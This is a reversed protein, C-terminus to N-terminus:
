SVRINFSNFPKYIDVSHTQTVFIDVHFTFFTNIFINLWIPFNSSCGCDTFNSYVVSFTLLVTRSQCYQKLYENQLVHWSRNHYVKRLINTCFCSLLLVLILYPISRNLYMLLIEGRRNLKIHKPQKYCQGSTTGVVGLSPSTLQTFIKRRGRRAMWFGIQFDWWIPM